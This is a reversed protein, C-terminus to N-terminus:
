AEDKKEPKEYGVIDKCESCILCCYPQGILKRWWSQVTGRIFPVFPIVGCKPCHDLPVRQHMLQVYEMPM